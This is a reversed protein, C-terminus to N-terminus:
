RTAYCTSHTEETNMFVLTVPVITNNLPPQKSFKLSDGNTSNRGEDLKKMSVKIYPSSKKLLDCIGINKAICSDDPIFVRLNMTILLPAM